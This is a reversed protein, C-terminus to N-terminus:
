KASCIEAFIKKLTDFDINLCITGGTINKRMTKSCFTVPATNVMFNCKAADTNDNDVTFIFGNEVIVEILFYGERYRVYVCPGCKSFHKAVLLIDHKGQTMADVYKVRQAVGEISLSSIYDVQIGGTEILGFSFTGKSIGSTDVQNRIRILYENDLSVFLIDDDTNDAYFNCPHECQSDIEDMIPYFDNNM